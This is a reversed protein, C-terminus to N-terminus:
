PRCVCNETRRDALGFCLQFAKRVLAVPCARLIIGRMRMAMIIDCAILRVGLVFPRRKRDSPYIAQSKDSVVVYAQCAKEDTETIRRCTQELDSIIADYAPSYRTYGPSPHQHELWKEAGATLYIIDDRDPGTLITCPVCFSYYVTTDAALPHYLAFPSRSAPNVIPSPTSQPVFHDFDPRPPLAHSIPQTAYM